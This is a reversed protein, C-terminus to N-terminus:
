KIVLKFTKSAGNASIKAIYVGAQLASMNVESTTNNLTTRMAEQGLINFVRLENLVVQSELTLMKTNQNLFHTIKTQEFENLSLTQANVELDDVSLFDQDTCDWHRFAIYVVPEGAMSSIDFSQPTPTGTDGADGLTETLTVASNVLVSIDNTTGVYISYNEEDWSEAAVQTIYDVTITGSANSLDIAPTVAWNDPTLPAGQWSRSILSVPTVNGGMGDTVQFLDGWFNGDGDEDFVTWDSIDEDDFNDSWVTNQANM